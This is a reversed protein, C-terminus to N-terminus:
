DTPKTDPNGSVPKGDKNTMKTIRYLPEGVAKHGVALMAAEDQTIWGQDRMFAYNYLAIQEFQAKELETRTDVPNFKFEVIGQKGRINLYLTLARSMLTAVVSQVAEVSKLYLKVEMKAYSETQGRSRRGMITSLTKLGAMVLNDIASMLKEPDILAGGGGKGGVMDIKVSDYHVFSDDPDLSKYMNIIENLRDNLWKQKKEENNRISVPMRNLLVQELITIDFRPYGQNHVVAKIDNLVQLQFLVINLAALFPSRGYPNDILEDLGEYFFTPIDLSISGNKQYPVFRNNEFKFTITQPDVPAIFAVDSKDPTLVMEFAAAGRIIVSLLLYNILKDISRSKEFRNINPIKLSDIFKAIIREGLVYPENTGLKHVHISYGSNGIRLFNWLAYSVDPHADILIDILDFIGYSNFRNEDLGLQARAIRPLITPMVGNSVQTPVSTRAGGFDDVNIRASTDDSNSSALRSSLINKLGSFIGM